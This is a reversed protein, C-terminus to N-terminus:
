AVEFSASKIEKEKKGEEIETLLANSKIPHRLFAPLAFSL